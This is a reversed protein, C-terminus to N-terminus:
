ENKDLWEDLSDALDDISSMGDDAIDFVKMVEDQEDNPSKSGESLTESILNTMAKRMLKNRQGISVSLSIM